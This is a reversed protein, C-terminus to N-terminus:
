KPPPIRKAAAVVKRWSTRTAPHEWGTELGSLEANLRDQECEVVLRVLVAVDDPPPETEAPADKLRRLADDFKSKADHYEQRWEHFEEWSPTAFAGEVVRNLESAADALTPGEPAPVAPDHPREVPYPVWEGNVDEYCPLVRCPEGAWYVVKVPDEHVNSPSAGLCPGCRRPRSGGLSPPLERDLPEDFLNCVPPRSRGCGGPTLYSCRVGCYRYDDAFTSIESVLYVTKDTGPQVATGTPEAGERPKPKPHPRPPRRHDDMM